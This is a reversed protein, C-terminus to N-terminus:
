ARASTIAGGMAALAYPLAIRLVQTLFALSFLTEIVLPRGQASGRDAAAVALVVVGQLM